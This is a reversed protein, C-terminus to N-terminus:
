YVNSFPFKGWSSIYMLQFKGWSCELHSTETGDITAGESGKRKRSESSMDIANKSDVEDLCQAIMITRISSANINRFKYLKMVVNEHESELAQSAQFM